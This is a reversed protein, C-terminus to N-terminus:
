VAAVAGSTRKHSRRGINNVKTYIFLIGGCETRIKM